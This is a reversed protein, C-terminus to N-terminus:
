FGIGNKYFANMLRAKHVDNIFKIINRCQSPPLPRLLNDSTDLCSALQKEAKNIAEIYVDNPKDM